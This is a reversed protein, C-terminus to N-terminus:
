EWILHLVHLKQQFYFNRDLIKCKFTSVDPRNRLPSLEVCGYCDCSCTVVVSLSWLLRGRLQCMVSRLFQSVVLGAFNCFANIGFACPVHVTRCSPSCADGGSSAASVNFILSHPFFFRAVASAVLGECM